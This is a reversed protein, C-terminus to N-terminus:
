EKVLGSDYEPLTRTLWQGYAKSTSVSCLTQPVSLESTLTHLHAEPLDWIPEM